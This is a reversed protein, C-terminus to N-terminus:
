WWLTASIKDNVKTAMVKIEQSIETHPCGRERGRPCVERKVRASLTLCRGEEIKKYSLYLFKTCRGQNGLWFSTVCLPLSWLSDTRSPILHSRYSYRTKLFLVIMRCLSDLTCLQHLKYDTDLFLATTEEQVQKDPLCGPTHLISEPGSQNRECIQQM